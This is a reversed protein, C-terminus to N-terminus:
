NKWKRQCPYGCSDGMGQDTDIKKMYIYEGFRFLDVQYELWNSVRM